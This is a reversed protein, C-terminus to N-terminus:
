GPVRLWRANVAAIVTSLSMLVAGAAPSLALGLGALVIEGEGKEGPFSLVGERGLFRQILPALALVPVSLALSIAFRRRFEAVMQAHHNDHEM